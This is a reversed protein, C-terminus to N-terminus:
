HKHTVIYLCNLEPKSARSFFHERDFIKEVHLKPDRFIEKLGHVAENGYVIYKKIHSVFEQERLGHFSGGGPPPEPALPSVYQTVWSGFVVDPKFHEIAASAEYNLVDDGYAVIPQQLMAYYVRMEPSNQIMSDTSPIGLLRGFVGNGGGVEISKNEVLHPKIAELLELTPLGYVGKQHCWLRLELEPIKSLEASSLLKLKNNELLLNDLHSVPKEQLIQFQM